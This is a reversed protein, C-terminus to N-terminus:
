MWELLQVPLQQAGEGTDCATAGAQAGSLLLSGSLGEQVSIPLRHWQSPAEKLREPVHCSASSSSFSAPYHWVRKLDPSKSLRYTLLVQISNPSLSTCSWLFQSALAPLNFLM